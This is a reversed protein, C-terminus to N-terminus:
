LGRESYISDREIAEDPLLPTDKSHSESWATLERSWEQTGILGARGREKVEASLESMSEQTIERGEGRALSARAEDLTACFEVRRREREEWLALAEAVAEEESRLRGTEVAHRAFARQDSTLTVEM